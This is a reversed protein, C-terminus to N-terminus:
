GCVSGTNLEQVFSTGRRCPQWDPLGPGNPDGTKMFNTWMDLMRRSLERDADTWPRWCRDLTGFMYWLEASHWAGQSDGPLDRAFCYVYAPKRGLEELKHSFATSGAYLLSEKVDPGAGLDDKTFGIMYPIDRIVGRDMAENCGYELFHGDVSPCLFLGGALPEVRGSLPKLAAYVDKAPMARMEEASKLGLMDTLMRGYTEQEKQDMKRQLGRGYFGGSQLVAGAIRGETLPSCVLTQTSMAGASQGFVTIKEPNGSFGRINEYVWDLAAAQDLSGYNGSLGNEDRLWPHALYGFLNCRYDVSVLIVGRRCFEAGDFEKETAWGNLFAGGHIWFAVPCDRADKPTWIQLYLCDEDMPRDYAPDDYFDRDWPPVSGDMQWCKGRFRDAMYIGDFRDPKQPARWRLPGVPPKAYPVGRYETYFGRDIGRIEGYVTQAMRM